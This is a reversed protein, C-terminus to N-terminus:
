AHGGGGQQPLHFYPLDIETRATLPNSNLHLFPFQCAIVPDPRNLGEM